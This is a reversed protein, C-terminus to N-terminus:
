RARVTYSEFLWGREGGSTLVEVWRGSRNVVQVRTGNDLRRIISHSTGPGTRFNLWGDTPDNVSLIPRTPSLGQVPVAEVFNEGPNCFADAPLLPHSRIREVLASSRSRETSGLTVAWLEGTARFIRLESRAFDPLTAVFNALNERRSFTAIQLACHGPAILPPPAATRAQPASLAALEARALAALLGCQAYEAIFAELVDRNGIGSVMAWDQRGQECPDATVSPPSPPAPPDPAPPAPPSPDPPPSAAPLLMFDGDFQDYVAPFQDHGVSRAVQRVETRVERALQHIPLGPQALRPLLARTFVSNPHPDDDSLRDLAAQGDGASFMVFAGEPPAVRALGRQSGLSRTGQQPFPNDRCADLIVLSIRAGQGRLTDLITALEMARSLLVIEEGPNALPVDAALLFNRGDIEIGHGAFYFVVEDGPMIQGALRALSTAMGLQDPDLVLDTRFGIRELTQAVAVADNRAKQLPAVHAYSDIGIVLAHRNAAMAPLTFLLAALLTALRIM